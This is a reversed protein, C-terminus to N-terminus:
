FVAHSGLEQKARGFPNDRPYPIAPPRWYQRKLAHLGMEAAGFLSGGAGCLLVAVTAFAAARRVAQLLRDRRM